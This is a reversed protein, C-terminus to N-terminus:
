LNTGQDTDNTGPPDITRGGLRALSRLALAVLQLAFLLCFVAIVSKLLFVGPLGGAEASRELNIWSRKIIPWSKIAIIYILPGGLVVAGILNVLAQYRRGAGAYILDIRVHGDHLLTYAAGLMFVTGHLWVYLEQMWVFGVSFFYRMVVVAFVLLVTAVTVWGMLRGIVENIRDITRVIGVLLAM